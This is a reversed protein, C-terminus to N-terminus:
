INWLSSHSSVCCIKADLALGGLPLVGAMESQVVVVFGDLVLVVAVIVVLLMWGAM